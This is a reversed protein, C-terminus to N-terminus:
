GVFIGKNGHPKLKKAGDEYSYCISGFTHMRSMDPIKGTMMIYLINQICQNYCRNIIYAACMVAYTLLNHPLNTDTLLRRAMEFRTRWCREANDNQHPSRPASFENKIKNKLLVSEFDKSVYEGGNDSRLTQVVEGIVIKM